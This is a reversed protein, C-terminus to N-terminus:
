NASSEFYSVSLLSQQDYAHSEKKISLLNLLFHHVIHMQFDITGSVPVAKMTLKNLAICFGGTGPYHSCSTNLCYNSKKDM